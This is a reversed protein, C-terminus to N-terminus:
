RAAIWPEIGIARGYAELMYAQLRRGLWQEGPAFYWRPMALPQYLTRHTIQTQNDPLEALEIVSSELRVWHDFFGPGGAQMAIDFEFHDPPQAATVRGLAIGNSFVVRREAGIHSGGGIIQQPVPLFTRVLWPADDSFRLHLREISTWVQARPLPVILTDILEAREPLPPPALRQSLASTFPILFLLLEAGMAGSRRRRRARTIWGVLHGVAPALVVNVPVIYVLCIFDRLMLPAATVLTVCVLALALRGPRDPQTVGALIGLFLPAAYLLGQSIAWPTDVDSGFYSWDGMVTPIHLLASAGGIAAAIIWPLRPWSNRPSHTM